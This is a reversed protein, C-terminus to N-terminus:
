RFLRPLFAAIATMGSVTVCIMLRGVAPRRITGLSLRSVTALGGYAALGLEIPILLRGGDDQNIDRLWWDLGITM